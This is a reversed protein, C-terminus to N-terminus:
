TDGPNGFLALRSLCEQRHPAGSGSISATGPLSMTWAENHAAADVVWRCLQALKAEVGLDRLADFSFERAAAVSGQYERVLLPAGRAYAKWAVQRPSDGERFARLWALEDLGAGPRSRGNDSGPVEPVPLNGHPTPYVLTRVDLQLWTWTRFLGFPASSELRLAPARWPGRTPAPLQLDIRLEGPLDGTQAAVGPGRATGALLDSTRGRAEFRLHLPVAQGAFAPEALAGTIRLGSLQRQTQLMAVLGFGALWFCLLMALGNGYNMGAIFIVALVAAFAWGTRTPLIYVRRSSLVLPLTDKGQRRLAWTL